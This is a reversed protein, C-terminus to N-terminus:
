DILMMSPNFPKDIPADNIIVVAILMMATIFPSVSSALNLRYKTAHKVPIKNIFKGRPRSKTPSPPAYRRPHTM